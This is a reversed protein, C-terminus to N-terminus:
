EERERERRAENYVKIDLDIGDLARVIGSGSPFEKIANELKICPRIDNM